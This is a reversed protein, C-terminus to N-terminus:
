VPCARVLLPTLDFAEVDVRRTLGVPEITVHLRVSSLQRVVHRCDTPEVTVHITRISGAPISVPLTSSRVRVGGSEVEVRQVEVRLRGENQLLIEVAGGRRTLTTGGGISRVHVTSVMPALLLCAAAIATLILWRLWPPPAPRALDDLESWGPQPKLDVPM